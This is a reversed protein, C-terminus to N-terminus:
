KSELLKILEKARKPSLFIGTWSDKYATQIMLRGNPYKYVTMKESTSRNNFKIEDGESKNKKM